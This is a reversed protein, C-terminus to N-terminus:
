RHAVGAREMMARLLVNCGAETCWRIILDRAQRDLETLALRRVGGKPTAGIEALTMLSDWLRDPNIEINM